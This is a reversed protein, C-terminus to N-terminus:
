EPSAWFVLISFHLWSLSDEHTESPFLSEAPSQVLPWEQLMGTFLKDINQKNEFESHSHFTISYSVQWGRQQIKRREVSIRHHDQSRTYCNQLSPSSRQVRWLCILLLHDRGLHLDLWLFTWPLNGHPGWEKDRKMFVLWLETRVVTSHYPVHCPLPLM